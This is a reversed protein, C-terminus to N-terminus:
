ACLRLNGASPNMPMQRDLAAAVTVVVSHLFTVRKGIGNVANRVVGRRM